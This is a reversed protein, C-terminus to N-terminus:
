KVVLRKLEKRAKTITEIRRQYRPSQYVKLKKYRRISDTLNRYLIIVDEISRIGRLTNAFEEHFAREYASGVESLREVEAILKRLEDKDLSREKKVDVPSDEPTEKDQDEFILSLRDYIDWM